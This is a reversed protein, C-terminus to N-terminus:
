LFETRNRGKKKAEYLASDALKLVYEEDIKGNVNTIGASFTIRDGNPTLCKFTKRIHHLLNGAAEATTEPLIAAFEEGGYRCFYEEPKLESHFHDVLEKLVFDGFQHGFNDNLSKFNDLDILCVSLSKDPRINKLNRSLCSQFYRRNFAGTLADRYTARILTGSFRRSVWAIAPVASLVAISLVVLMIDCFLRVRQLLGASAIQLVCGFDPRDPFVPCFVLIKNETIITAVSNANGAEATGASNKEAPFDKMIQSNGTYFSIKKDGSKEGIMRGAVGNKLVAVLLSGGSEPIVACFVMRNNLRQMFIDDSINICNGTFLEARKELLEKSPAIRYDGHKADYYVRSFETGRSDVYNIRQYVMKEQCFTRLTEGLRWRWYKIQQASGSKRILCVKSFTSSGALHNLDGSQSLFFSRLENSKAKVEQELSAITDSKLTNINHMIQRVALFIAPLLPLCIAVAIKLQLSRRIEKMVLFYIM